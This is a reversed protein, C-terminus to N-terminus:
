PDPESSRVARLRVFLPEPGPDLPDTSDYIRRGAETGAAQGLLRFLGSEWRKLDRSTEPVVDVGTVASNWPIELRAYSREGTGRDERLLSFRILDAGSNPDDPDIGLAEELWDPLGDGDRDPNQSGGEAPDAVGPSGGAAASAAWSAPANPDSGEGPNVLVLSHGEQAEVPWGPGEAYRVDMLLVGEADRLVLRDGENGLNRAFDGAVPLGSGYRADFAERLRVLLLRAGPELHRIDGDDFGYDVGDSLVLGSLDLSKASVNLLELFEFDQSGYGQATEEPSRGAPRFYIESWVLDGPAPPLGTTFRATNLASWEGAEVLRARIEVSGQVEFGLGAREYRLASASIEGTWPTRPDSGDTTYYIEGPQPRFITGATLTVKEGPELVGGQPGFEPTRVGPYLGADRLQEVLFRTRGPFYTGVLRNRETMWEVDRTYPQSRKADGWRASEGLIASYIEDSRRNWRELSNEPTLAGGGFCHRQVHDGYLLRFESNARLRSYVFSISGPVAVNININREPEWLSYEMDWVFFRFQAGAERKRVGRMNNSQFEEPGDRNTTYQHILMYDILGPIDLYGELAEYQERTALGAAALALMENYAELDGNIAENTSTRRNIADYDESSGGFYEAAFGADPREVPNYLGWYLGNLYLHVYTAHGDIRGMDRATDRAFSDRIYQSQQPDRFDQWGRSGQSRLVISDFRTVPADPFLPYEMKTPGYEPRFELRFSHKKTISHDRWGFGHIRVGCHSQYGAAGDPHIVEVSGEREWEAGRATSHTYIGEPGFLDALPMVLSMTRISRLAQDMEGSYAPDDVVDPDMGYDAAVGAWTSPYGEPADPQRLIDQPFLYSHTVVESPVYGPKSALARLVTTRSISLAESYTEVPRFITGTRPDRGGTTFSIAAGDTASRMELPFTESYLGREVSFEPPSVFGTYAPGNAAGPTAQLFFGESEGERGYSIGARQVPIGPGYSRLVRQGDQDVLALYEGGADIRFNTHLPGDGEKRDKGSAFVVRYGGPPIVWDPFVWQDLEDGDDTLAYGALNLSVTNPNWIEIWDAAEGDEDLLPGNNAAM